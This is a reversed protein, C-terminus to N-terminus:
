NENYVGNITHNLKNEIIYKDYAIAGELSTKFKGLYIRKGKVQIKAEWEKKCYQCEYLGYRYKRKSSETPFQMGLDKILKPKM